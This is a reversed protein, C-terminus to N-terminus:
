KNIKHKSKMHYIMASKSAFANNCEKCPYPFIFTHYVREHYIKGNRHSFGEGCFSCNYPKEHLHINIYHLRQNEETSFVKGCECKFSKPSLITVKNIKHLNNLKSNKAIDKIDKINKEFERKKGIYENKNIKNKKKENNNDNNNNNEIDILNNTDKKSILFNIKEKKNNNVNECNKPLNFKEKIEEIPEKINNDLFDNKGENIMLNNFNFENEFIIFDQCQLSDFSIFSDGSLGSMKEVDENLKHNFLGFIERENENSENIIDKNQSLSFSKEIKEIYINEDISNSQNILSSNKDNLSKDSINLSFPTSEESFDNIINDIDHWFFKYSDEDNTGFPSESEQGSLVSSNNNKFSINSQTKEEQIENKLIKNDLFSNSRFLISSNQLIQMQM